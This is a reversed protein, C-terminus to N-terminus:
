GLFYWIPFGALSQLLFGFLHLLLLAMKTQSKKALTVVSLGYYFGCIFTIAFSLLFPYINSENYIYDVVIPTLMTLSLFMLFMGIIKPNQSLRM